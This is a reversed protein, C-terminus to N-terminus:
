LFASPEFIANSKKRVKNEAILKFGWISLSIWNDQFHPKDKKWLDYGWDIQYKEAVKAVKGWDFDKPYLVKWKVAIDIAEWKM